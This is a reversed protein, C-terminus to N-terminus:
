KAVELMSKSTVINQVDFLEYLVSSYKCQCVSLYDIHDISNHWKESVKFSGLVFKLPM